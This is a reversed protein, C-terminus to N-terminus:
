HSLRQPLFLYFSWAHSILFEKLLYNNNSIMNMRVWFFVATWLSPVTPYLVLFKFTLFFFHLDLVVSPVTDQLWPLCPNQSAELLHYHSVVTNPSSSSRSFSCVPRRLTVCLYLCPFLIVLHQFIDYLPFPTYTIQM